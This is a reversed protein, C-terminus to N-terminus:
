LIDGLESFVYDSKSLQLHDAIGKLLYATHPYYEELEKRERLMKEIRPILPLTRVSSETKLENDIHLYEGMGNKYSGTIKRRITM